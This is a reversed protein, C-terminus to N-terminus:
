DYWDLHVIKMAEAMTQEDYWNAMAAVWYNLSLCGRAVTGDNMTMPETLLLPQLLPVHGGPMVAVVIVVYSEVALKRPRISLLDTSYVRRGAVVVIELETVAVVDNSARHM